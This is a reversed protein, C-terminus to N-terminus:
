IIQFNRIENHWSIHKFLKKKKEQWYLKELQKFVCQYKYRKVSNQKVTDM